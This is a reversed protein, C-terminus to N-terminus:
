AFTQKVLSRIEEIDFPKTIIRNQVESVFQKARPTFVGGTMFIIRDARSPNKSVVGQYFDIGTKEPMMLDCFILDFAQEDFLELANDVRESIVVRHPKLARGLVKAIMPEDDLILIQKPETEM